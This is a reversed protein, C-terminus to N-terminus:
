SILGSMCGRVLTPFGGNQPDSIFNDLLSLFTLASNLTLGLRERHALSTADVFMFATIILFRM